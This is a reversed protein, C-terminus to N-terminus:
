TYLELMSLRQTPIAILPTRKKLVMGFTESLDLEEGEALEWKFSHLLSALVYMLMREALPIGPCMRRGSGFPLYNFNNGTYDWKSSGNLFREPKFETPNDWVHPDRHIAWANLFITTGKPVRYGGVSCSQSPRRPLLLPGPPHLRFAEKVVAELYTLQHLHSEEVISNMGVVKALEEHVKEMIEPHHMMEAMVWEVTTSTTDTGGVVIDILMAKIHTLTVPTESDERDRQELLLQLFDKDKKKLTDEGEMNLRQDIISNFIDEVCGIIRRMDQEVGQIDFRALIPFFDSINPKGLLATIKSGAERFEASNQNEEVTSCGLLSMLADLATLFTVKKIDIPKGIKAYMDRITQRVVQKRLYYCADLSSNSMLDRVFVKRLNRWQPGYSAFGIDLGGNSVVLAAVTPDRNAFILDHDRVVEKILRTSSIVVCLKRGLWLKYIPGYVSALQTFSRHLDTGLFPLYGVIPLGRPGPPLKPLRKKLCWFIALMVVSLTIVTQTVARTKSSSEWWWTLQNRATKELLHSIM